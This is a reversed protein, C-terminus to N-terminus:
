QCQNGSYSDHFILDIMTIPEVTFRRVPFADETIEIETRAVTLFVDADGDFVLVVGDWTTTIGNFHCPAGAELSQQGYELIHGASVADSYMASCFRFVGLAAYKYASVNLLFKTGYYEFVLLVILFCRDFNNIRASTSLAKATPTQLQLAHLVM